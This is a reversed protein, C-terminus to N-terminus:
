RSGLSHTQSARDTALGQKQWKGAQQCLVQNELIEGKAPLPRRGLRPMTAVISRINFFLGTREASWLQCTTGFPATPDKGEGSM